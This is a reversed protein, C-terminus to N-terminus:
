NKITQTPTEVKKLSYIGLSLLLTYFISAIISVVTKGKNSVPVIDGYGLATTSAILFYCLDIYREKIPKRLNIIDDDGMTKLLIGAFFTIFLIYYLFIFSAFHLFEKTKNTNIDM